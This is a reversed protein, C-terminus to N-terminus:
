YASPNYSLYLREGKNDGGITNVNSRVNILTALKGLSYTSNYFKLDWSINLFIDAKSEMSMISFNQKVTIGCSLTCM